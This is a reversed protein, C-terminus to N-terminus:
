ILGDYQTQLSFVFHPWLCYDSMYPPLHFAPYVARRDRITMGCVFALDFRNNPSFRIISWMVRHYITCIVSSTTIFIQQFVGEALLVFVNLYVFLGNIEAHKRNVFFM